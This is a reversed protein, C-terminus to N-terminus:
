LEGIAEGIASDFSMRGEDYQVMFEIDGTPLCKASFMRGVTLDDYDLVKYISDNVICYQRHFNDKLCELCTQCDDTFTHRELNLIRKATFEIDEDGFVPVERITGKYTRNEQSM